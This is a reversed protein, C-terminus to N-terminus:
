HYGCTGLGMRALEAQRFGEAEWCLIPTLVVVVGLHASVTCSHAQADCSLMHLDRIVAAVVTPVFFLSSPFIGICLRQRHAM